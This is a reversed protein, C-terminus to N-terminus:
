ESVLGTFVWSEGKNPSTSSQPIIEMDEKSTALLLNKNFRGQIHYNPPNFGGM